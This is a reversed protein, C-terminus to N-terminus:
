NTVYRQSDFRASSTPSTCKQPSSMSTVVIDPSTEMHAASTDPGTALCRAQHPCSDNWPDEAPSCAQQLGLSSEGPQLALPSQGLGENPSASSPEINGFLTNYETEQVRAQQSSTEAFPTASGSGPQETISARCRGDESVNISVSVAANLPFEEVVVASPAVVSEQQGNLSNPTM